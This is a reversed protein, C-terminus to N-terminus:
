DKIKINPEVRKKLQSVHFVSHILSGVPLNLEYAVAEIKTLIEFPRYYMSKLKYHKGKEQVRVQTNPQLKLYMWNGVQFKRKVRKLDAHKKM